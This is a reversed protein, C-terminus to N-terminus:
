DQWVLRFDGRPTGTCSMFPFSSMHATSILLPTVEGAFGRQPGPFCMLFVSVQVLLCWTGDQRVRAEPEEVQTISERDEPLLHTM